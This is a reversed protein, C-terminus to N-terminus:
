QNWDISNLLNEKKSEITHVRRIAVTVMECQSARLSEQMLETSSYKGTGTFLRSSFYKHGIQIRDQNNEM